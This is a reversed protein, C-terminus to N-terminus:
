WLVTRDIAGISPRGLLAMATELEDRLIKVVRAVGEAGDVALGYAYSRGILVANAGLALAKVVDTGRRIGGDVLMPVRGAVREAVEPLAEITAPVTDLNRAGHNSVLIGAAGHEIARQADDGTLVGKLLVPVHAIGRLWEVDRWTISQRKSSTTGLRERGARDLHPTPLEPPLKFGAREQRNRMGLVPTDVTLCLARVGVAEARAILDRTVERDSQIYVQLWMSAGAAAIDEITSNTSTSAVYIADGKKAGRAAEVEGEPHFLKQYGVPALLIPHPLQQGLLEVRTDIKDIEELVRPRVRIRDYAERNERLTIEDAAGGFLFEFAMHSLRERALPEFDALSVPESM